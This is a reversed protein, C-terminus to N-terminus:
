SDPESDLVIAPFREGGEGLVSYFDRLLSPNLTASVTSSLHPSLTDSVIKEIFAEEQLLAVKMRLIELEALERKMAYTITKPLPAPRKEHWESETGTPCLCGWEPRWRDWSEWERKLQVAYKHIDKTINLRKFKLAFDQGDEGEGWKTGDGPNHGSGMQRDEPLDQGQEILRHVMAQIKEPRGCPWSMPFTSRMRAMFLDRGPMSSKTDTTIMKDWLRKQRHKLNTWKLIEEQHFHCNKETEITKSFEASSNLNTVVSGYLPATKLIQKKSGCPQTHQEHNLKSSTVYAQKIKPDNIRVSKLGDAQKTRTHFVASHYKRQGKEEITKYLLKSKTMGKYTNMADKSATNQKKQTGPPKVMNPWTVSSKSGSRVQLAKELAKELFLMEEKEVPDAFVNEEVNFGSPLRRQSTFIDVIEACLQVSEHIQAQEVKRSKITNELSIDFAMKTTTSARM